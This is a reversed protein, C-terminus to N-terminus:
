EVRETREYIIPFNDCYALSRITESQDEDTGIVFIAFMRPSSPIAAYDFSMSYYCLLIWFLMIAHLIVYNFSM